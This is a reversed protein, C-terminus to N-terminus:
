EMVKRTRSVFIAPCGTLLAWAARVTVMVMVYDPVPSGTSDATSWPTNRYDLSHGVHTGTPPLWIRHYHALNWSQSRRYMEPCGQGTLRILNM